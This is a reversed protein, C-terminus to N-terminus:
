VNLEETFEFHAGLYTNDVSGRVILGQGPLLVLPEQFTFTFPVNATVYPAVFAAGGLVAADSQTRLEASAAAGGALKSPAAGALTGLSTSYVCFGLQQSTTTSLVIAKVTVRKNATNNILQVYPKQAANSVLATGGMFAQGAITRAKGGDVVEVTGTIREDRFDFDGALITGVNAAGSKDTIEISEFNRNSVGQGPLLDIVAGDTLKVRILGTGVRYKFFRGKTNIIQGGLPTLQFDYQM